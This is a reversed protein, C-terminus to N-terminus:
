RPQHAFQSAHPDDYLGVPRDALMKRQTFLLGSIISVRQSGIAALKAELRALTQTGALPRCSSPQFPCCLRLIAASKPTLRPLQRASRAITRGAAMAARGGPGGLADGAVSQSLWSRTPHLEGGLRSVGSGVPLARHAAGAHFDVEMARRRSSGVVMGRGNGIVQGLRSLPIAGSVRKRGTDNGIAERRNRQESEKRKGAPRTRLAQDVVLGRPRGIAYACDFYLECIRM